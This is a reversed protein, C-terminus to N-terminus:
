LNLKVMHADVDWIDGMQMIVQSGVAYVHGLQDVAVAAISDDAGRTTGDDLTVTGSGRIDHTWILEGDGDYHRVFADFGEDEVFNYGGVILTGDPTVAIDNVADAFGGPGDDSREWVLEGAGSYRALWADWTNGPVYVFGGVVLDGDPLVALAQARDGGEAERLVTWVETGDPTLRRIWIDWDNAQIESSAYGVTVIDGNPTFAVEIAADVSAGAGDHQHAWRLEGDPEFSWVMADITGDDLMIFGAVALRGDADVAVAVAEDQRDMGGEIVQTWADSLDSNM